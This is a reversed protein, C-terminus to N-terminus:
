RAIAWAVFVAGAASWWASAFPEAALANYLAFFAGVLVAGVVAVINSRYRFDLPRGLPSTTVMLRDM